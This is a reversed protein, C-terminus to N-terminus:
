KFISPPSIESKKALKYRASGLQSRGRLPDSPELIPDRGKQSVRQNTLRKAQLISCHNQNASWFRPINPEDVELEWVKQ